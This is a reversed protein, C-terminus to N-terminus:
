LSLCLQYGYQGSLYGYGGGLTLGGIGTHNVTGGVLDSGSMVLMGTALGEAAAAADVDAWLCGGEAIIHNKETDIKVQKM